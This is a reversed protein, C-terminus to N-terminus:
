GENLEEASPRASRHEPVCLVTCENSHWRDGLLDDSSAIRLPVLDLHLHHCHLGICSGTRRSGLARCPCSPRFGECRSDATKLCFQCLHLLSYLLWWLCEHESGSGLDQVFSRWILLVIFGSSPPGRAAPTITAPRKRRVVFSSSPLLLHRLHKLRLSAELESLLSSEDPSESM